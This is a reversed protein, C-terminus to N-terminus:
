ATKKSRRWLMFAGLILLVYVFISSWLVLTNGLRYSDPDFHFKITHKGAPVSLGRLAYNVKIIEVPKDDITAKWGGPYYIESFVAFQPTAANFDYTIDDNR